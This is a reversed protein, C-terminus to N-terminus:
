ENLEIVNISNQSAWRYITSKDSRTIDNFLYIKEVIQPSINNIVLYETNSYKDLYKLDNILEGKLLYDQRVERLMEISKGLIEDISKLGYLAEHVRCVNCKEAIIDSSLLQVKIRQEKEYNFKSHKIFTGVDYVLHGLNSDMTKHSLIKIFESISSVYSMKFVDACLVDGKLPIQEHMIAIDYHFKKKFEFIINRKWKKHYEDIMAPENWKGSTCYSYTDNQISMYKSLHLSFESIFGDLNYPLNLYKQQECYHQYLVNIYKELNVTDLWWNEFFTELSDGSDKTANSAWSSTNTFYLQHKDFLNEAERMTVYRYVTPYLGEKIEYINIISHLLDRM